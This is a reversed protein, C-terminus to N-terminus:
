TDPKERTAEYLEDILDFIVNWHDEPVKLLIRIFEQKRKDSMSRALEGMLQMLEAERDLAIYPDGEGTRLWSKNVNYAQCIMRITQESPQNAGTELKWVAAGSIGIMDGFKEQSMKKDKATERVYKIRENITM